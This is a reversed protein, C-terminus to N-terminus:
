FDGELIKQITKVEEILLDIQEKSLEKKGIKIYKKIISLEDDEKKDEKNEAIITVEGKKVNRGLNELQQNTEIKDLEKLVEEKKEPHKSVGEYYAMLFGRVRKIYSEAMGGSRLETTIVDSINKKSFNVSALEVIIYALKKRVAIVRGEAKILNKLEKKLTSLTVKKQM